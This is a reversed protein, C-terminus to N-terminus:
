CWGEARRQLAWIDHANKAPLETHKSLEEALTVGSTDIPHPEYEM